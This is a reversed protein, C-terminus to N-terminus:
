EKVLVAQYQRRVFPQEPKGVLFEDMAQKVGPCHEWEYDDLIIIGGIAMRPYFFQLADLTSQYLDGDIHVFSFREAELGKATDPFYGKRFVVNTLGHLLDSVREISTDQFDGAKHKDIPQENPMGEFTDFLFVKKNSAVTATLKAAGGKYVGLEAISGAIPASMKLYRYLSSFKEFSLLTHRQVDRYRTALEWTYALKRPLPLDYGGLLKYSQDLLSVINIKKM